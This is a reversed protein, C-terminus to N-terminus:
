VLSPLSIQLKIILLHPCAFLSTTCFGLAEESSGSGGLVTFGSPALGAESGDLKAHAQPLPSHPPPRCRLGLAESEARKPAGLVRLGEGRSSLILSGHLPLLSCTGVRM